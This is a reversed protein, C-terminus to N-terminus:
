SIFIDLKIYCLFVAQSYYRLSHYGKSMFGFSSVSNCCEFHTPSYMSNGISPQRVFKSIPAINYHVPEISVIKPISSSSKSDIEKVSSLLQPVIVVNSSDKSNERQFKIRKAQIEDQINKSANHKLPNENTCRSAQTKVSEQSKQTEERHIEKMNIDNDTKMDVDNNEKEIKIEADPVSAANTKIKETVITNKLNSSKETQVAIRKLDSDDCIAEVDIIESEGANENICLEELIM